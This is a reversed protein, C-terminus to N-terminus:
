GKVVISEFRPTAITGSPRRSARSGSAGRLIDGPSDHARTYRPKAPTDVILHQPLQSHIPISCTSISPSLGRLGGQSTKEGSEEPLAMILAAALHADATQQPHGTGRDTRHESTAECLSQVNLGNLSRPLAVGGQSGGSLSGRPARLLDPRAGGRYPKTVPRDLSKPDHTM